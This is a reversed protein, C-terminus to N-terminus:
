LYSRNTESQGHVHPLTIRLNMGQHPVNALLEITANFPELREELGNLGSGRNFKHTLLGNNNINLIFPYDQEVTISIASAKGHRVANSIAEQVCFLLQECVDEPQIKISQPYNLSVGKPLAKKIYTLLESLDTTAHSSRINRVSLRLEELTDQVSQKLEQLFIPTNNPQQHIAYELHLNIVTLRHGVNDHLDRSIRLREQIQTKHELLSQTTVLELHTKELLIKTKKANAKMQCSAAVFLQFFVWLFISVLVNEDAHRLLAIIILCITLGAICLLWYSTKLREPLQSVLMVLFIPASVPNTLTSSLTLASISQLVLAWTNFASLFSMIFAFVFILSFISTYSQYEPIFIMEISVVVMWTIIGLTMLIKEDKMM